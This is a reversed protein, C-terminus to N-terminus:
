VNKQIELFVTNSTRSIEMEDLFIWFVFVCNNPNPNRQECAPAARGVSKSISLILGSPTKQECEFDVGFISIVNKIKKKQM